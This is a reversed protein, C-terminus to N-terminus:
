PSVMTRYFRTAPMPSTTDSYQVVGVSNAVIPASLNSWTGPISDAWQIIYSQGPIGAFRVIRASGSITISLTNQGVGPGTVNVTIVAQSSVCGDTLTYSIQDQGTFGSIPTYTILGASLVVAGGNTSLPAVSSVSLPQDNPDHAQALLKAVPLSTSANEADGMQVNPAIPPPAPQVTVTFSCVDTGSSNSATCTVVNTGVPFLYPSTITQGGLQCTLVGTATPAFAVLQGDDCPPANTIIAAPCTVVPPFSSPVLFTFQDSHDGSYGSTFNLAYSQSAPGGLGLVSATFNQSGSPAFNTNGSLATLDSINFFVQNSSTGDGVVAALPAAGNANSLTVICGAVNGGVFTLLLGHADVVLANEDPTTVSPLSGSAPLFTQNGNTDTLQVRYYYTTGPLCYSVRVEALGLQATLARLSNEEVRKDYSDTLIPEGTDLPFSELGVEGSLNTLGGADSFVSLSTTDRPPVNWVVSFSEPTVNVATPQASARVLGLAGCILPIWLRNIAARM